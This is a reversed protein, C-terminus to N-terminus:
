KTLVYIAWEEGRLGINTADTSRQLADSIDAVAEIEECLSYIGDNPEKVYRRQLERLEIHLQACNPNNRIAEAKEHIQKDLDNELNELFKKREVISKL